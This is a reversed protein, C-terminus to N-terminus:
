IFFYIFLYIFINCTFLIHVEFYFIFYLIYDLTGDPFTNKVLWYCFMVMFGFILLGFFTSATAIEATTAKRAAQVQIHRSLQTLLICILQTRSLM